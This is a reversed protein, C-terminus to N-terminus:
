AGSSLHRPEAESGAVALAYHGLMRALAQEHFFTFLINVIKNSLQIELVM